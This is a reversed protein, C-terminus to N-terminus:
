RAHVAEAGSPWSGGLFELLADTFAPNGDLWPAHGAGSIVIARADRMRRAWDRGSAVATVPDEAGIIVLAPAAVRTAAMRWDWRGNATAQVRQTAARRAPWENPFRCPDDKMRAIFDPEGMQSPLTRAFLDARCYGAPDTTDRGAKKMLELAAVLSPDLRDRSKATNRPNSAFAAREPAIMAVRSVRTPYQAAYLAAVAAYYGAAAISFSRMRLQARLAELDSVDMAAGHSPVNMPRSSGGRGRPDYFIVTRRHALTDLTRELWAAMPVVVTDAGSGRVVYRIRQGDPSRAYRSADAEQAGALGSILVSSLLVLFRM